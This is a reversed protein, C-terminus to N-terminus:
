GEPSMEQGRAIGADRLHRLGRNEGTELKRPRRRRPQEEGKQFDKWTKGQDISALLFRIGQNDTPNLWIMRQFVEKARAVEGLRWLCLGYGHLCRLFPRNDIMGWKLVGGFQEGLSLEGIRVGVEYHRLARKACDDYSSERNFDWNGLHAHADICRLDTTLIREMIKHASKSDGCGHYESAELIPDDWMEEPDEGPIVQEMEYLPRPGAEIVPKLCSEIGEGPEGWYEDTPNWMGHHELKLPVLGLKEVETRASLLEGSLYRTGAYNWDKGAKVSLIQGPVERWIQHRPRFTVPEGTTLLRCRVGREKMALAVLEVVSADEVTQNEQGM